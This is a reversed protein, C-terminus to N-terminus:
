LPQEILLKDRAYQREAIRVAVNKSAPIVIKAQANYADLNFTWKYPVKADRLKAVLTLPSIVGSADNPLDVLVVSGDALNCSAKSGNANLFTVAKLQKKKLFVYIEDASVTRPAAAPTAAEAPAASADAAAQTEFAAAEEETRRYASLDGRLTEFPNNVYAGAGQASLAAASAAATALWQRRDVVARQPTSLGDAGLVLLAAVLLQM